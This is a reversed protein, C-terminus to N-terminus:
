LPFMCILIALSPINEKLTYCYWITAVDSPIFLFESIMWETGLKKLISMIIQIMFVFNIFLFCIRILFLHIWYYGIIVTSVASFLFDNWLTNWLDNRHLQNPSRTQCNLCLCNHNSVYSDLFFEPLQHFKFLFKIYGVKFVCYGFMQNLYPLSNGFYIFQNWMHNSQPKDLVFWHM